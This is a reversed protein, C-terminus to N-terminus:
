ERNRKRLGQFLVKLGQRLAENAIADMIPRGKRVQEEVNEVGKEFSQRLMKGVLGDDSEGYELYIDYERRKDPESLIGYAAAGAKFRVEARPDDQNRDPHYRKVHERYAAKISEQSADQPVGLVEYHTM